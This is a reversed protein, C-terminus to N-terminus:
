SKNTGVPKVPITQTNGDLLRYRLMLTCVSRKLSLKKKWGSVETEQEM